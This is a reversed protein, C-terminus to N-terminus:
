LRLILNGIFEKKEFPAKLLEMSDLKEKARNVRQSELVTSIITLFEKVHTELNPCAENNYFYATAKFNSPTKFDGPPDQTADEQEPGEPGVFIARSDILTAHYKSKLCEHM